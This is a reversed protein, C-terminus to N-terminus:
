KIKAAMKEIEPRSYSKFTGKTMKAMEQMPAEAKENPIGFAIPNVQITRNKKVMDVSEQPNRTAGDTM